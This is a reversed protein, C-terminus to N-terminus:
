VPPPEASTCTSSPCSRSVPLNWTQPISSYDPPGTWKWLSMGASLGAPTPPFHGGITDVGNDAQGLAPAEDEGGALDISAGTRGPVVTRQAHLQLLVDAPLPPPRHDLLAVVDDAQVGGDDQGPVDPGCGAVDLGEDIRQGLALRAVLPEAGVMQLLRVFRLM